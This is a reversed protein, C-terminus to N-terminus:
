TTSRAFEPMCMRCNVPEARAIALQGFFYGSRAHPAHRLRQHAEGAARPLCETAPREAARHLVHERPLGQADFLFVLLPVMVAGGGIGLLGAFFGVINNRWVRKTAAERFADVQNAPRVDFGM